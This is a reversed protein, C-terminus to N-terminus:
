MSARKLESKRDLTKQITARTEKTQREKIGKRRRALDDELSEASCTLGPGDRQRFEIMDKMM